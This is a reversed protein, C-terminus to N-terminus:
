GDRKMTIGTISLIERALFLGMGKREESRKDFITKKLGPSIGEGNDEFFITLGERRNM